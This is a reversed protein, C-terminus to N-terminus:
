YHFLRATFNWDVQLRTTQFKFIRYGVNSATENRRAM